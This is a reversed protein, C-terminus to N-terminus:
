KIVCTLILVEPARPHCLRNITRSKTETGTMIERNTFDLGASPRASVPPSDAQSERETQGERTRVRMREREFGIFKFFFFILVVNMELPPHPEVHTHLM